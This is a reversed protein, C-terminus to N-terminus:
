ECEAQEVCTWRGRESSFACLTPGECDGEDRCADDETRCFLGDANQCMDPSLACEGSPCDANTRCEAPGCENRAPITSWGEEARDLRCLCAEDPECDADEDCILVCLCEDTYDGAACVGRACDADAACPNDEDTVACASHWADEATECAVAEDRRYWGEGWGGSYCYEYGSYGGTTANDRDGDDFTVAECTPEPWSTGTDGPDLGSEGTHGPALGSEGADKDTGACGLGLALLLLAAM